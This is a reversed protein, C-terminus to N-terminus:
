TSKGKNWIAPDIWKEAVEESFQVGLVDFAPLIPAYDGRALRDTDVVFVPCAAQRIVDHVREQVSRMIRRHRGDKKPWMRRRSRLIQDRPRETTVIARPGMERIWHWAAPGRKIAWPGGPYGQARMTDMWAGPWGTLDKEVVRRIIEVNEFYGRPNHEDPPKCEGFWIGHAHFLGATMSTGSRSQGTIWIWPDTTMVRGGNALADPATM